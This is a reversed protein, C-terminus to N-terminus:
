CWRPVGLCPIEGLDACSATRWNQGGLSGRQGRLIAHALLSLGQHGRPREIFDCRSHKGCEELPQLQPQGPRTLGKGAARYSACWGGSAQHGRRLGETRKQFLQRLSRWSVSPLCFCTGWMYCEASPGQKQATSVRM